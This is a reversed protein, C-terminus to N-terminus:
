WPSISPEYISNSTCPAVEILMCRHQCQVGGQVESAQLMSQLIPHFLLSIWSFNLINSVLFREGTFIGGAPTRVGSASNVATRFMIFYGNHIARNIMCFDFKRDWPWKKAFIKDQFGTMLDEVECKWTSMIIFRTSFTGRGLVAQM